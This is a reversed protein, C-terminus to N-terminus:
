CSLIVKSKFSIRTDTSFISDFGVKGAGRRKQISTSLLAPFNDTLADIEISCLNVPLSDKGYPM